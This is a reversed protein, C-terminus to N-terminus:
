GWIDLDVIRQQITKLLFSGTEMAKTALNIKDVFRPFDTKKGITDM